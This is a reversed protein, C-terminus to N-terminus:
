FLSEFTAAAAGEILHDVWKAPPLARGTAVLFTAITEADERTVPLKM